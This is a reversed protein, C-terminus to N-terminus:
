NLIESKLVVLFNRFQYNNFSTENLRVFNLYIKCYIYIFSAILISLFSVPVSLTENLQKLIYDTSLTTM